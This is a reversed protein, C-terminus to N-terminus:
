TFCSKPCSSPFAPYSKRSEGRRGANGREAARRQYTEYSGLDGDLSSRASGHAGNAQGITGASFEEFPEPEARGWAETLTMKRSSPGLKGGMMTTGRPMPENFSESAPMPMLSASPYPGDSSAMAAITAQALPSLRKDVVPVGHPTGASNADFAYM